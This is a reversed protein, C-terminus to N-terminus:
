GPNGKLQFGVLCADDDLAQVAGFTRADDYMSSLIDPLPLDMVRQASAMLRADGFEEQETNVVENIGDTYMFVTDGPQLQREITTYFSNEDLGL